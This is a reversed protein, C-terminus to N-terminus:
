VVTWLIVTNGGSATQSLKKEALNNCLKHRRRHVFNIVFHLGVSIILVAVVASFSTALNKNWDSSWYVYNKGFRYHFNHTIKTIIKFCIFVPIFLVLKEQKKWSFLCWVWSNKGGFMQFVVTFLTYILVTAFHHGLNAYNPPHKVVFLDFSLVVSNTIHTLINNMDVPEVDEKKALFQDIWYFISVVWSLVLSQNWLWWYIKMYKTMKEGLKMKDFHYLTVLLAGFFTTITTGCLNLHTLYIFYVHFHHRDIRVSISIAVSIAFFIAFIWRYILYIASKEGKQWQLIFNESWTLGLLKRFRVQSQLFDQPVHHTFSTTFLEQTNKRQM